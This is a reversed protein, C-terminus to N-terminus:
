LLTSFSYSNNLFIYHIAVTSLYFFYLYLHLSVFVALPLMCILASCIVAFFPLSSPFSFQDPVSVMMRCVAGRSEADELLIVPLRSSKGCGTEGHIITVRDRQANCRLYFLPSPPSLLYPAILPSLPSSHPPLITHILTTYLQLAPRSITNCSNILQFSTFTNPTIIM